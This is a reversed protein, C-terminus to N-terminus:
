KVLSKDKSPFCPIKAALEVAERYLDRFYNKRRGRMNGKKM